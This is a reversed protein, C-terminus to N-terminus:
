LDPIIMPVEKQYQRYDEGFERILKQEEFRIGILTYITIITNALLLSLHPILLWLGWIFFFTGLYLPHRIYRHLGHRQLVNGTENHLLWNMGSLRMFYKYIAAMMVLSGPTILLWGAISTFINKEFVVPSSIRVQYIIILSFGFLAFLTYLLRYAPFPKGSPGAIMKKFRTSALLSHLMCYLIWACSLLIHEKM